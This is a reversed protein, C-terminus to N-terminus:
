LLYICLYFGGSGIFLNKEQRQCQDIRPGEALRRVKLSFTAYHLLTTIYHQSSSKHM